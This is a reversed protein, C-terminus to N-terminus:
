ITTTHTHAGDSAATGSALSASKSGVSVNSVFTIGGSTATDELTITPQTSVKVGTLVAKTTHAGFGTIAAIADKENVVTALDTVDSVLQVKGTGSTTDTALTITPQASIKVGTLVAKTTHAGFGTIAAATTPAGLATIAAATAPSAYGTVANVNDAGDHTVSVASVDSVLQVKGTGSTTDTALSITPQTKVSASTLASGTSATGLGTMVTDGAGDAALSGTAVTVATGRTAVSATTSSVATPTNATFSFSLVGNANVSASWAAATGNTVTVEKTVTTDSGAPVISTTALKSTAGPYSKVFTGTGTNLATGSATAKIYTKTAAGGTVTHGTGSGLVEDTTADGLGTLFNGTTPTYGTVANATTPAGLATIANATGNAAATTGSATAKIYTKSVTGTTTFTAAEGLANDTTPTGLATIANATGNGAVAAGSATATLHKSTPTVTPVTVTGSVTHTHAGDSSSTYTGKDAKNSIDAATTGIKEWAYSYPESSGSRLTVWEVYTGSIADDAVLYINHMTSESATPLSDVVTMELKAGNSLAVIDAWSKPNGSADQIYKGNLEYTTSGLKVVKIEAM